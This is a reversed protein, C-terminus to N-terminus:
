LQRCKGGVVGGLGLWDWMGGKSGGGARPKTWTDKITPEQFGKGM